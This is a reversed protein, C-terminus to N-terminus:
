KQVRWSDHPNNKTIPLIAREDFVFLWGAHDNRRIM